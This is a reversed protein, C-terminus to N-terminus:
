NKSQMREVCSLFLIKKGTIPLFIRKIILATKKICGVLNKEAMWQFRQSYM